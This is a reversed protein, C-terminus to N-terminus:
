RDINKAILEGCLNGSISIKEHKRYIRSSFVKEGENIFIEISSNDIWLEMDIIKELKCSKKDWNNTLWNLRYISFEMKEFNYNIKFEDEIIWDINKDEEINQISIM